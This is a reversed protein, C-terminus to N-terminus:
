SIQFVQEPISKTLAEGNMLGHVYCEEVFRYGKRRIRQLLYPTRGGHLVVVTNGLWVGSQALGM